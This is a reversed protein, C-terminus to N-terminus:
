MIFEKAKRLLEKDGPYTLKKLAEEYPLWIVNSVEAIQPTPEGSLYNMAFITVVKFIKEGNKTIVYKTQGIKQVIEAKIGTEEEVERLAAVESSEGKELHGKPFGWWKEAPNNMRANEVLLVELDKFVIGGSSFENTMDKIINRGQLSEFGRSESGSDSTRDM